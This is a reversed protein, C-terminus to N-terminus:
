ELVGQFVPIQILWDWSDRRLTLASELFTQLRWDQHIRGVMQWVLLCACIRGDYLSQSGTLITGHMGFVDNVVFYCKCVFFSSIHHPYVAKHSNDENHPEMHPSRFLAKEM